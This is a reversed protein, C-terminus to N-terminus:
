NLNWMSSPSPFWGMVRDHLPFNNSIHVYYTYQIFSSLSIVDFIYQHSHHHPVVGGFILGSFYYITGKKKLVVRCRVLKSPILLAPFSVKYVITENGNKSFSFRPYHMVSNIDYPVQYVTTMWNSQKDFNSKYEPCLDFCGIIRLDDHFCPLYNCRNDEFIVTTTGPHPDRWLCKLM